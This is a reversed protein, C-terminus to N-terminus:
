PAFIKRWPLSEQLRAMYALTEKDILATHENGSHGQAPELISATGEGNVNELYALDKPGWFITYDRLLVCVGKEFRIPCGHIETPMRTGDWISFTSTADEATHTVFGVVNVKVRCRGLSIFLQDLRTLDTFRAHRPAEDHLLEQPVSNSQRSEDVTNPHTVDAHRDITAHVNLLTPDEMQRESRYTFESFRAEASDKETFSRSHPYIRLPKRIPRQETHRTKKRGRQTIDQLWETDGLRPKKRAWGNDEPGLITRRKERVSTENVEREGGMGTERKGDKPEGKGFSNSYAAIEYALSQSTNDDRFESDPAYSIKEVADSQRITLDSQNSAILVSSSTPRADLAARLQEITKERARLKTELEDVAKNRGDLELAIYQIEETKNGLEKGLEQIKKNRVELESQLSSQIKIKEKVEEELSLINEKAENYKKIESRVTQQKGREEESYELYELDSRYQTCHKCEQTYASM